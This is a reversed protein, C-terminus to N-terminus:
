SCAGLFAIKTNNIQNIRQFGAYINKDLGQSIVLLGPFGSFGFRVFAVVLGNGIEQTLSFGNLDM